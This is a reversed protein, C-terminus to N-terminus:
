HFFTVECWDLRFFSVQNYCVGGHGLPYPTPRRLRFNRTRTGDSTNWNQTLVKTEQLLINEKLIDLKKKIKM